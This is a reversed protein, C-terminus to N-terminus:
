IKDQQRGLVALRRQPLDARTRRSQAGAKCSACTRTREGPAGDGGAASGRCANACGPRAPPQSLRRAGLWRILLDAFPGLARLHARESYENEIQFLLLNPRRAIAARDRRVVRAGRCTAARCAFGRAPPLLVLARHWRASGAAGLHGTGAARDAL